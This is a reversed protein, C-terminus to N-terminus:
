NNGASNRYTLKLVCPIKEVPVPPVKGAVWDPVQFMVSTEPVTDSGVPAAVEALWILALWFVCITSPLPLTIAAVLLARFTCHALQEPEPALATSSAANTAPM